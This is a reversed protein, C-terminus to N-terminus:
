GPWDGSLPAFPLVRERLAPPIRRDLISIVEDPRYLQSFHMLVLHPNALQDARELLEDLHIHCGARAAAISKREDLFTCELLLVRSTLISPERDIVQVLTDTAYALELHEAEDTVAEGRRRREAIQAGPLGVLDARLKQVRRLIQYGLSPVPHYTRFARVELDKRLAFRDGAELGVAEIDLPWGQLTAMARLVELVTALIEAPMIVRLRTKIGHLARIGLLGVLAGIHDSHAHSLLLTGVGAASRMPIGVDFLVDLEPVHLSTYVGGVSVGRITYPGASLQTIVARRHYWEAGEPTEM